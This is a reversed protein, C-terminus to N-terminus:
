NSLIYTREVKHKGFKFDVIWILKTHAFIELHPHQMTCHIAPLCQKNLDLYLTFSMDWKGGIPFQDFDM